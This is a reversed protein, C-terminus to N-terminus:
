RKIASNFRERNGGRACVERRWIVVCREWLLFHIRKTGLVGGSHGVISVSCGFKQYSM